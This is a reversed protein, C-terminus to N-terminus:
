VGPGPGPVRSQTGLLGLNVRDVAGKIVAATVTGIPQGEEVVVAVRGRLEVPLAIQGVPTEPSVVLPESRGCCSRLRTTSRLDAPVGTLARVSLVGEPRGDLGVLVFLDALAQGSGLHGLFDDVTWWSPATAPPSSMVERVTLGRLQEVTGAHREGEASTTIFWGIMMLWLGALGGALVDFLGLIVLATGLWRGATAAGDAARRRDHSKAWLAARLLRGGDLPAGPLLNFVALLLNTGALWALAVGPLSDGVLAALGAFLIGLVMSTAPGIGAILADSRPSTPEGGLETLGGLMWLSIRQVPMGFHRAAVAHALEHVLLSAVLVAATVVGTLWYEAAPHGPQSIPLIGVALLSALLGVVGLVSWHALVEVGAYRGLSVGGGLAWRSRREGSGSPMTM